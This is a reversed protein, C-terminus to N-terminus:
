PAPSLVHHPMTQSGIIESLERMLLFEYGREKLLAIVEHLLTLGRTGNRKHAFRKWGKINDAIENAYLDYPHFYTVLIEPLAFPIMACRYTRLGFLKVYSFIFPLRIGGLCAVPLELISGSPGDCRFPSRGYRLNNYAYRDPRYSPVISSDYKFGRRTLRNIGADDILCNPARYGLPESNWLATYTEWSREIEMDSAPNAQDHSYSHVAYETKVERALLDLRDFHKKAESMLTFSTLPISEARLLSVFSEFRADDDLLRIRHDPCHLDPELDVTLCALRRTM